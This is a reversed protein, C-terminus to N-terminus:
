PSTGASRKHSERSLIVWALLGGMTIDISSCFPPWWVPMGPNSILYGHVCDYLGHGVLGAVVFWQSRRYGLATLVFFVVIAISELLLANVSGGMVAFLAYYLAVVALITAYYARDRDLGVLRGFIWVVFGLIIGVLLAM